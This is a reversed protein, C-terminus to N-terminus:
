ARVLARGLALDVLTPPLLVARIRNSLPSASRLGRSVTKLAAAIQKGNYNFQPIDYSESEVMGRLKELAARANASRRGTATVLFDALYVALQAPTSSARADLGLDRATDRLEEWAGVEPYFSQRIREIRRRRQSRRVLAPLVLVILLLLGFLWGWSAAGAVPTAVTSQQGQQQGVTLRAGTTPVPTPSSPAPLNAPASPDTTPSGSTAKSFDPEFGRGPTPEFRVWGIGKFYLEPWAHLDSSSVQYLNVGAAAGGTHTEKGPLFGVAIRSPIGLTRAMVAM